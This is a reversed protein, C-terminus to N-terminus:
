FISQHSLPFSRIWNRLVVLSIFFAISKKLLSIRLHSSGYPMTIFCTRFHFAISPSLFFSLIRRFAWTIFLILTFHHSGPEYLVIFHIWRSAKENQLFIFLDSLFFGRSLQFYEIALFSSIFFMIVACASNKGLFKHDWLRRSPRDGNLVKLFRSQRHGFLKTFETSWDDYATDCLDSNVPMHTGLHLGWNRVQLTTYSVGRVLSQPPFTLTAM